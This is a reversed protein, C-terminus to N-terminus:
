MAVPMKGCRKPQVIGSSTIYNNLIKALDEMEEYM